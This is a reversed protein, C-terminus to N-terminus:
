HLRQPDPVYWNPRPEQCLLTFMFKYYEEESKAEVRNPKPEVYRHDLPGLIGYYNIAM